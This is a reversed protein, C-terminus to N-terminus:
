AQEEEIYLALKDIESVYDAHIHSNIDAHLQCSLAMLIQATDSPHLQRVNRIANIVAQVGNSLPMPMDDTTHIAGLEASTYANM